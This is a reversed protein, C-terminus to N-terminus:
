NIMEIWWKEIIIAAAWKNSLSNSITLNEGYINWVSYIQPHTKVVDVNQTVCVSETVDGSENRTENVWWLCLSITSKAKLLSDYRNPAFNVANDTIVVDVMRLSSDENVTITTIDATRTVTYNNGDITISKWQIVSEESVSIDDILKIVDGTEAESIAQSLWTYVWVLEWARYLQVSNDSWPNEQAYSVSMFFAGISFLVVLAFLKILKKIKKDTYILFDVERIINGKGYNTM